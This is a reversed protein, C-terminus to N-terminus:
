RGGNGEQARFVHIKIGAERLRGFIKDLDEGIDALSLYFLVPSFGKRKLYLLTDVGKFGVSPTLLYLTTNPMLYYSQRRLNAFFSGAQVPALAILHDAITKYDRFRRGYVPPSIGAASFVLLPLNDKLRAYALSAALEVALDELCHNRDHRYSGAHMDLFLTLQAEATKDYSKVILKEQRASQKWHIHKVTDGDQWERLGALQNYNEFAANPVTRDGMQQFAPLPIEPFHRIRPYVKVEGGSALPKEVQFFGFPDGTRVTLDDLTYIGRRRCFIERVVEKVEGPELSLYQKEQRFGEGSGALELYPFASNDANIITYTVAFSQGVERTRASVTVKGHLKALSRRLRFYPVAPALVLLYLFMYPFRGAALLVTSLLFLLAVLLLKKNGAM